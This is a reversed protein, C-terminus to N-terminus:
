KSKYSGLEGVAAPFERDAALTARLSELVARSGPQAATRQLTQNARGSTNRDREMRLGVPRALTTIM